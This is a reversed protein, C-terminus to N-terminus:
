VIARVMPCSESTGERWIVASSRPAGAVLQPSPYLQQYVFLMEQSDAERGSGM